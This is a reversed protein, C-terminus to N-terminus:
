EGRMSRYGENSRAVPVYLLEGIARNLEVPTFDWVDVGVNLLVKGEREQKRWLNHVHACLVYKGKIKSALAPDHIMPILHKQYRVYGVILKTLKSRDHNGKIFIIDGNLCDLYRNPNGFCFDGLHYVTDEEKVNGNWRKIIEENMHDIDKFPRDCYDIIKSHSIHTDGTIWYTM